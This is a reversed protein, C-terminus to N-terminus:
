NSVQNVTFKTCKYALITSTNKEEKKKKRRSSEGYRGCNFTEDFAATYRRL